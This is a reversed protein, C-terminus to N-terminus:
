IGRKEYSSKEVQAIKRAIRGRYAGSHSQARRWLAKFLFWSAAGVVLFFIIMPVTFRAVQFFNAFVVIGLVVCACMAVWLIARLPTFPRSIEALLSLGVVAVLATALSSVEQTSWAFFERGIVVALLAFVVALAAPMSTKLVNQLFNGRVREHNTELALVFSPIGILYTSILTMQIPLLPYPPAVICIIGVMLSFITKELFLSSSRELNNISQRGEAVVQPLHSFDNDVLVLEAVNRAADSGSAMAISCDAELLALVDNVGDGTMAVTHGQRQLAQVLERKQEPKVRGFVSATAAAEELAQQTTLTSADVVAGASSLGAEQAIAAVTAADDGSIVKIDVGQRAFYALTGPATTRVQDLLAVEGLLRPEGVLEYGEGFGEVEAVVLVRALANVHAGTLTRKTHTVTGLLAEPPTPATAGVVGPAGAASAAGAEGRKEAHATAAADVQADLAAELAAVRAPGLVFSAAGLVYSHGDQTTVGSYKRESSFPVVRAAPAPAIQNNEGWTLLATATDNADQASAGVVAIAAEVLQHRAVGAAPLFAELTMAGSTLTGTKDLCLTDVRALTEICYLQQVLVNQRALRMTAIALVSSTLLVLGQPIMGVVAAVMSLIAESISETSGLARLFLGVGVPVIVWSAFTIISRLTAM